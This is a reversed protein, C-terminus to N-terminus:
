QGIFICLIARLVRFIPVFLLCSLILPLPRARAGMRTFEDIYKAPNQFDVYLTISDPLKNGTYTRTWYKNCSSGIFYYYKASQWPKRQNIYSSDKQGHYFRRAGIYATVVSNNTYAKRVFDDIRVIRKRECYLVIPILVGFLIVISLIFAIVDLIM